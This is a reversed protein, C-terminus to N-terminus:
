DAIVTRFGIHSTPLNAEHAERASPRYRVCFDRGCLHSGGKIVMAQNLAPNASAAPPVSLKVISAPPEHPGVYPDKTQEWANGVMDYLQFGNAAFCGVPALGLFGDEGTNISPFPGQWFNATPKGQKDRPEKELSAGQRGAKAAFEWQAETPLERGLWNAYAKADALTVLTVPKNADATSGPGTPHRWDAGKIETWWAYDRANLEEPTPKKFVAASGQKEAETVYGTAKVFSEFQAVTVETQDIWFGSVKTHVEQREDDYGHQTGLVFDGGPLHVMGARADQGWHAPLGIYQGCRDKSGLLLGGSAEEGQTVPMFGTLGMLLATMARFLGFQLRGGM